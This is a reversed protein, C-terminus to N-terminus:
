AGEHLGGQISSGVAPSRWRLQGEGAAIGPCRRLRGSLPGVVLPLASRSSTEPLIDPGTRGRPLSRRPSGAERRLVPPPMSPQAEAEREPPDTFRFTPAAVVSGAFNAVLLIWIDALRALGMPTIGVAVSPDFAGRVRIRGRLGRCLRHLRDGPRLVLERRHGQGDGREPAGLVPRVHVPVGGGAGAPPGPRGGHASDGEAGRAQARLGVGQRASGRQPLRPAWRRPRWTRVSAAAPCEGRLFLALAV